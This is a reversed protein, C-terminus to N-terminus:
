ERGYILDGPTNGRLNWWLKFYIAVSPLVIFFAALIYIPYSIYSLSSADGIKFYNAVLPVIVPGILASVLFSIVFSISILAISIASYILIINNNSLGFAKLTGLNKKNKSIHSVILNTIYLVISFISFFILAYALLDALKNFLDFNKKSEIIRMDIKLTKGDYLTEAKLFDNFDSIRDLKDKYFEFVFLEKDIEKDEQSFIRRNALNFDFVNYSDNFEPLNNIIQTRQILTLNDLKFMGGGEHIIDDYEIEKFDNEVLYKKLPINNFVYYQLYSTRNSDQYELSTWFDPDQLSEFLKQGLLVDIDDPFSKVYGQIPVSFHTHEGNVSKRLNLFSSNKDEFKLKNKNTLYDLSVVCGWGDFDFNNSAANKDEKLIFDYVPDFESGRRVKANKTINLDLNTFNAYNDYVPYPEKFGYYDFFTTDYGKNIQREIWDVKVDQYEELSELEKKEKDNLADEKKELHRKRKRKQKENKYHIKEMQKLTYPNGTPIKVNVFSVFPNNMKKDLYNIAGEGLGIAMMSLILISSLVLLNSYSKGAISKFEPKAFKKFFQKNLM